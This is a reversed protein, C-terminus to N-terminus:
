GDSSCKDLSLCLKTKTGAAQVSPEATKYQLIQSERDTGDNRSVPYDCSYLAFEGEWVPHGSHFLM